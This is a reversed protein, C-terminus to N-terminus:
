HRRRVGFPGDDRSVPCRAVEIQVFGIKIDVTRVDAHPRASVYPRFGM